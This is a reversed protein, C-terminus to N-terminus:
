EANPDEDSTGVPRDPDEDSTGVPRDLDPGPSTTAAIGAVLGTTELEFLEALAGATLRAPDPGRDSAERELRRLAQYRIAGLLRGEDDVVPMAHYEQWGPHDRVLTVPMGVTLRAVDRHMAASVPDRARALMLEPIDLVGVLRQERDVIYLYYLLGRASRALRVRADAVLVDDPLQFISPDMVAGATGPPYPLVRTIPERAEAPLAALLPDRRDAELGRVIAAADDIPLRAVIAAADGAALHALCAAAYPVTMVSMVRAASDPAVARLVAAARPVPMQELTMTARAPHSELFARALRDEAIM